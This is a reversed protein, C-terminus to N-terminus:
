GLATGLTDLFTACRVSQARLLWVLLASFGIIEFAFYYQPAKLLSALFIGLTRYNASLVSWERLLPAFTERYRQRVLSERGPHRQLADLTAERVRGTIGAAPFSLGAYFFRDLRQFLGDIRRPGSEDRQRAAPAKRGWGLSDYEQRELEYSASQVAHCIGALIVLAYMGSGYRRSLAIALATYVAVFTVTDSIGDLVKGFHSYSHTLRALQGDAGDMVHWALMLLFGALTWEFERYRYYALGALIGFLMGTLSVANPTIHAKAFLPVFRSAIPHIFYRNTIEEIETTRRISDTSTM